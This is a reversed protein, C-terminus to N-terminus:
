RRPHSPPFIILSGVAAMFGFALWSLKPKKPAPPAAKEAEAKAVTEAWKARRNKSPMKHM